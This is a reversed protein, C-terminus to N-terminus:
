GIQYRRPATQRALLIMLPRTANVPAPASHGALFSWCHGSRFHEVYRAVRDDREDEHRAREHQYAERDADDNRQELREGLDLLHRKDEHGFDDGDEDGHQEGQWEHGIHQVAVDHPQRRSDHCALVHRKANWGRFWRMRISTENRGASAAANRSTNARTPVISINNGPTPSSLTGTRTRRVM